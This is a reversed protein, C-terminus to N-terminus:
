RLTHLTKFPQMSVPVVVLCLVSIYFRQIIQVDYLIEMENRIESIAVMQGQGCSLLWWNCMRM